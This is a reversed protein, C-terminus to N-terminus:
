ILFGGNQKHTRGRCEDLDDQCDALRDEARVRAARDTSWQEEIFRIQAETLGRRQDYRSSLVKNIIGGTTVLITLDLGIIVIVIHLTSLDFSVM